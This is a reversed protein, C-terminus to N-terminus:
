KERGGPFHHYGSLDVTRGAVAWEAGAESPLIGKAYCGLLIDDLGAVFLRESGEQRRVVTSPFTNIGIISDHMANVCLTQSMAAEPGCIIPELGDRRSATSETARERCASLPATSQGARERCESAREIAAVLKQFQPTDDPAGYRKRRGKRDVAVIEKEEDEDWTIVADEFELRFRPSVSRETVHSAYFLVEVGGSTVARCVATDCSEIPYARYLEAQVSLPCASLHMEPGLVFFLNHLFHAMANNAPGDLVWRGTAEDRLRGAWDNRRYYGAERPWLCLASARIPRGFLGARVDRKLTLIASSFSWQYGIMVWSGSQRRARILDEAEQITAGLPKDCLVASGRSLATITQPVHWHIPSSIVALDARHGEAYFQEISSRVPVDLASVIPWAPSQMAQPDVVGALRCRPSEPPTLALLANLYHQGYGGIAVMLVSVPGAGTEAM